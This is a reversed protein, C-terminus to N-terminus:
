VTYLIVAVFSWLKTSAVSVRSENERDRHRYSWSREVKTTTCNIMEEKKQELLKDRFCNLM